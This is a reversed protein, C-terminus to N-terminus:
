DLPSKREEAEGPKAPLSFWQEKPVVKPEEPGTGTDPVPVRGKSVQRKPETM